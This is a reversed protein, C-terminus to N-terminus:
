DLLAARLQRLSQADMGLGDNLYKVFTGYRQGVEDFAAELYGASLELIPRLLGPERMMGTQALDNGLKFYRAQYVHNSLLYDELVAPYPVGLATAAIATMWGTRDRGSSCHYLLPLGRATDAMLRLATGFGDRQRQDGVFGRHRALMFETARGEGLEAQQRTHDGSAILDYFTGVDAGPIPLSVLIAGGPRRDEGNVLVEGPLRFDVVTRLGISSLTTLDAPTLRSLADGRFVRGPKVQLGDATRMGGLDRVNVAGELQMFRVLVQAYELVSHKAASEHRLRRRLVQGILNDPLDDCM